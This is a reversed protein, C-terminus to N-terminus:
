PQEEAPAPEASAAPVTTPPESPAPPSGPAGGDIPGRERRRLEHAVALELSAFALYIGTALFPTLFWAVEGAVNSSLMGAGLALGIAVIHVGAAFLPHNPDLKTASGASMPARGGRGSFLALAGFASLAGVVFLIGESFAIGPLDPKNARALYAGSVWITVTYGYPVMSSRLTAELTQEWRGAAGRLVGAADTRGL